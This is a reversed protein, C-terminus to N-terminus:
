SPPTPARVVCPMQSPRIRGPRHDPRGKVAHSARAGPVSVADIAMRFADRRADRLHPSARCRRGISRTRRGASERTCQGALMRLGYGIAPSDVTSPDFSGPDMWDAFASRRADNPDARAKRLDIAGRAGGFDM